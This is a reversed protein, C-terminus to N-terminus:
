LYGKLIGENNVLVHHTGLKYEAKLRWIWFKYLLRFCCLLCTTSITLDRFFSQMKIIEEDGKHYISNSQLPIQLNIYFCSFTTTRNLIIIKREFSLPIIDLMLDLVKVSIFTMLHVLSHLQVLLAEISDFILLQNFM